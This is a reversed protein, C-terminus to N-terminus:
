LHCYKFFLWLEEPLNLHWLFIFRPIYAQWIYLIFLYNLHFHNVVHLLSVVLYHPALSHNNSKIYKMTYQLYNSAKFIRHSRHLFFLCKSLCCQYSSVAPVFGQCSDNDQQQIWMWVTHYSLSAQKNDLWSRDSKKVSVKSILLWHHLMKMESPFHNWDLIKFGDLQWCPTLASCLSIESLHQHQYSKEQTLSNLSSKFM